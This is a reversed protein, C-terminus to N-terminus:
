GESFARGPSEHQSLSGFVSCKKLVDSIVKFITTDQPTYSDIFVTKPSTYLLFTPANDNVDQISVTVIVDTAMQPATNCTARVALKYSKVKEYDLEKNTQIQGTGSDVRFATNPNGGVISYTIGAPGTAQVRIVDTGITVSESLSKSYQPQQFKVPYSTTSYVSIKVTTQSSKM